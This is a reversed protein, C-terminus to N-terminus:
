PDLLVVQGDCLNVNLPELGDGACPGRLCRGDEFRFLAGHTACEIFSGALDLFRHPTWELPAGTHPCSNRYAYVRDRRRVVFLELHQGGLEVSFGRSGPDELDDLACLVRVRVGPGASTGGAGGTPSM